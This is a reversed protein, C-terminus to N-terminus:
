AAKDATIGAAQLMDQISVAYGRTADNVFFYPTV